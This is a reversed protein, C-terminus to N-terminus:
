GKSKRPDSSRPYTRKDQIRGKKTKITLEAREYDLCIGIAFEVADKKLGRAGCRLGDIFVVWPGSPHTFRVEVKTRKANPM